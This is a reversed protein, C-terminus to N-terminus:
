RDEHHGGHIGGVPHQRPERRAAEAFPGAPALRETRVLTDRGPEFRRAPAVGAHGAGAPAQEIGRYFRAKSAPSVPFSSHVSAFRWHTFARLWRPRAARRLLRGLPR